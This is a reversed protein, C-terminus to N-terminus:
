TIFEDTKFMRSPPPLWPHDIFALPVNHHRLLDVLPPSLWQKNRIEFAFRYQDEPLDDLLPALRQIFDNLAVNRAKAYYPCQFPIPGLRPGRLDMTRFFHRLDDQCNEMVKEQTIIQPAKAAFLFTEPTR